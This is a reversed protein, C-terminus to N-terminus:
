HQTVKHGRGELLDIVSDKGVLHLAGVVVLYDDQSTLLAEIPKLWQKNRDVTLPRYLDPYQDFGEELLRALAATDGHRWASILEDIEEAAREADEVSYMLFERQQVPPLGALMELQQRMTELGTIEKKDAVARATLRQEVGSQPDLGQKMLQLQVLTMAALWPRFRNLLAPDIGIIRAQKAVQEYAASGLESELTTNDPLLGLEMTAQQAAGADLDDMDIEMVIREADRYAADIAQPLEDSPKLFHVSGLLYVTNTKGQVSWLTSAPPTSQSYAAPQLGYISGLLIWAAFKTLKRM